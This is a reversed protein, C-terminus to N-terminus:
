CHGEVVVLRTGLLADVAEEFAIVAARGSLHACALGAIGARGRARCFPQRFPYLGPHLMQYQAKGSIGLPMEFHGGTEAALDPFLSDTPRTSRLSVRRSPM